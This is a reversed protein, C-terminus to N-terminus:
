QNGSESHGNRETASGSQNMYGYNGNLTNGNNGQRHSMYYHHRFHRYHGNMANPMMMYNYNGQMMSGAIRNQRGNFYPCYYRYSEQSVRSNDTTKDTGKVVVFATFPVALAVLLIFLLRKYTKM